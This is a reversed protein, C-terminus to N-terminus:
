VAMRFLSDIYKDTVKKSEQIYRRKELLTPLQRLVSCKAKIVTLPKRYRIYKIIQYFQIGTLLFVYKLLLQGPMNKIIMYLVNRQIFYVVRDSLETKGSSTGHHVHYVVAEPVYLCQFGALQARFSLDVDECYAFFDEDFLGVADFMSKRYMAAAACAGFINRYDDYQGRDIEGQGISKPSIWPRYMDGASHFVGRDDFQLIKSACFGTEPHKELASHLAELWRVDVETDNNLLAVYIGRSAKIGENVAASFGRNEKLEVIRVDPHNKRVFEVSGDTSGNDVLIIEFDAFTQSYLASLCTDLFHKGNWNPIVVSIPKNRSTTRGKDAMGTNGDKRM